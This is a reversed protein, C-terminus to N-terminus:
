AATRLEEQDRILAAVDGRARVHLDVFELGLVAEDSGWSKTLSRVAAVARFSLYSTRFNLELWLAESDLDSAEFDIGAPVCVRCGWESVDVLVGQMPISTVARPIEVKGNTRYRKAKRRETM